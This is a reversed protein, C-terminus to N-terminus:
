FYAFGPLFRLLSSIAMLVVIIMVITRITSDPIMPLLYKFVIYLVLALILIHILLGLM